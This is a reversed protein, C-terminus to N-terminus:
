LLVYSNMVRKSELVGPLFEDAVSVITVTPHLSLIKLVPQIIQLAEVPWSRTSTPRWAQVVSMFGPAQNLDM